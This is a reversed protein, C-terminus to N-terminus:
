QRVLFTGSPVLEAQALTTEINADHTSYVKRPFTTMLSFNDTGILMAIHTHATRIPDTPKFSAKIVNGDPLRFQIATETYEKKEPPSQPIVPTPVQPQVQGEAAKRQAARELRDQEIREKIRRKAEREEEKEKRRLMAERERAREEHIRKAEQAEKGSARRIKERAIEAEAEEKARKARLAELKDKVRQKQEELEEPTLDKKTPNEIDKEFADFLHSSDHTRTRYCTSCLDYDSCTSCKFRIGTIQKWCVNCFANHLTEGETEEKKETGETDMPDSKAEEAGQDDKKGEDAEAGGVPESTSPSPSPSPETPQSEEVPHNLCWDMAAEVNTGGTARLAKLAHERPFGMEMLNSLFMENVQDGGQSPGGLPQGGGLTQGEGVPPRGLVNGGDGGGLRQGGGSGGLAYGQGPMSSGSSSSGSPAQHQEINRRLQDPDAGSFEALKTGNKFFQFTPMSSVGYSRATQQCDDVDIKLFVVGSYQESLDAYIPSIRKCPGCWSATFYLIVLKGGAKQMEKELEGDRHIFIVNKENQVPPPGGFLNGPFGPFGGPPGGPPRGGPPGGGGRPPDKKMDNLTRINAM